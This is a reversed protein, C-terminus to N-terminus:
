PKPEGDVTRAALAWNAAWTSPHPKGPRWANLYQGWGEAATKPLADPLTYILLRAAVAAVLDNYRMAEWLGAATPEVNFESCVALMHPSALPHRLVGLCGGGKEFQWFSAAPGVEGAGALVQRRHRLGSEQLAIALMFREAAASAPIGRQALEALAPRIAYQLLRHPTM